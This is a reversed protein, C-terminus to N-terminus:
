SLQSTEYKPEEFFYNLEGEGIITDIDSWKSIRDFIIPFLKGMFEKNKLSDYKSIEPNKKLWAYIQEDRDNISLLKLHEKNIWDLKDSNYIGPSKQVKNLGFKEILENLSFIEQDTGSNWGILAMFNLIASPLYGLNKYELAPVVSPDRKSLKSRDQSLILPIHAYLPRNAGIAEQILIQRITNTTHEQGRIIHSIKMEYDDIVSTTHYLPTELDRALVFDGLDTSDVTIDGLILDNFTIKRNPNNYRIVQDRQGEEKIEEKSVYAFGDAIMKELYKKYIETRESQKFYIDHKLGLWEFVELFETEYEKKSRDKDTDDCRLIYTGGNQRAFLFNFLASRIGGVHFHGTPSPAFRTIVKNDNSSM